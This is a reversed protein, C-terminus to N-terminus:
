VLQHSQEQEQQQEQGNSTNSDIISDHARPTNQMNQSAAETTAPPRLTSPLIFPSYRTSGNICHGSDSAPEINNDDKSTGFSPNM